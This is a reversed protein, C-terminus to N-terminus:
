YKKSISFSGIQLAFEGIKQNLGKVAKLKVKENTAATIEEAIVEIIPKDNLMEKKLLEIPTHMTKASAKTSVKKLTVQETVTIDKMGIVDMEEVM